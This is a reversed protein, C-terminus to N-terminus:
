AIAIVRQVELDRLLQVTRDPEMAVAAIIEEVTTRGDIMALLAHADSDLEFWTLDERSVSIVPVADPSAGEMNRPAPRLTSHNRVATPPDEMYEVSVQIDPASPARGERARADARRAYTQLGKPEVKMTPLDGLKGRVIRRDRWSWGATDTNEPALKL